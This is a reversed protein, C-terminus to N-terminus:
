TSCVDMSRPSPQVSSIAKYAQRVVVLVSSAAFDEYVPRHGDTAATKRAFNCAKFFSRVTCRHGEQQM